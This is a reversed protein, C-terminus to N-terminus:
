NVSQDKVYFTSSYMNELHDGFKVPPYLVGDGRCSEICEVITDFNPEFFFPTSFRHRVCSPNLVRHITSKFRNNTWRQMMDGINIVLTNPESPVDIWKNKANLIQLGGADDQALITCCGYDSHAGCGFRPEEVPAPPYHLLRLVAQPKDIKDEFWDEDLQLSMAFVKMLIHGLKTAHEFYDLVGEKWGEPLTSSDPWINSRRFPKHLDPDSPSLERGIDYGEKFDGLEKNVLLDNLHPHITTLNEEGFTFYGQNNKAQNKKKEELPISFFANMLKFLVEVKSKPLVSDYGIIMFFGTDVCADYVEKAVSQKLYLGGKGQSTFPTIDIIPISMTPLLYSKFQV